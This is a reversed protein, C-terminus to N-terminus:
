KDEEKKIEEYDADVMKDDPAYAEAGQTKAADQEAKNMFEGIKMASKMLAATKEEIEDKKEEKLADKLALIDAEIEKKIGDEIKNGHESISKETSHILM